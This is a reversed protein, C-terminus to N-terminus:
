LDDPRSEAADFHEDMEREAADSYGGPDRWFRGKMKSLAGRETQTAYGYRRDAQSKQRNRWRMLLERFM